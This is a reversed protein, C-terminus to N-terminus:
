KKKYVYIDCKERKDKLTEWKQIKPFSIYHWNKYRYQIMKGQLADITKKKLMYIDSKIVTNKQVM